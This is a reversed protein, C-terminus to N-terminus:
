HNGRIARLEKGPLALIDRGELRISGGSGIMGDPEVLRLVALSLVSKGCGSEGVLGITEGARVELDVGDVARAVGDATRFSVHLDHIELLPLATSRSPPATMENRGGQRYVARGGKPEACRAARRGGPQVRDRH